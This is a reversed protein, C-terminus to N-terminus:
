ERRFRALHRAWGQAVGPERSSGLRLGLVGAMQRLAQSAHVQRGLGAGPRRLREGRDADPLGQEHGAGSRRSWEGRVTQALGQAHEEGAESAHLIAVALGEVAQLAQPANLDDDMAASFAQRANETEARLAQGSHSHNVPLQDHGVAAQLREARAEAEQLLEESFSWSHRYHHSALYLRVADASWRGLLDRVMILNGLSKSMKEGEHRVMAIHMWTRVFPQGTLPEAQAIESEHHPFILDGGGAHIDVTDGLFKGAMTSCEIHWGPRGPGWPSDWAPEGPAQAQWLVFDLPDRKNPDDPKNGRENAVPLMQERPLGSLSGYSPWARLDFYVSGGAQYAKGLNLLGQVAQLIDPVVDTARPFQDPALVNLSIMDEIFHATWRDGLARWDEGARGASRLIDDDIDTVNQVYRVAHGRYELYRVLLDVIGYTFAHGLHTTDYPTIGCTYISVPERLPQLGEISRSLSNYLQM